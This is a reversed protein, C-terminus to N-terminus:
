TTTQQTRFKAHWFYQITNLEWKPTHRIYKYTILNTFTISKKNHKSHFISRSYVHIRKQRLLFMVTCLIKVTEQGLVQLYKKTIDYNWSKASSLM